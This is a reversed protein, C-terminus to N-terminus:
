AEAFRKSAEGYKGEMLEEFGNRIKEMFLPNEKVRTKAELSHFNKSPTAEKSVIYSLFSNKMNRGLSQNYAEVEKVADRYLKTISPFLNDLEQDSVEPNNKKHEEKLLDATKDFVLFNSMSKVRWDSKDLHKNIMGKYGHLIHYSLLSMKLDKKVSDKIFKPNSNKLQGFIKSMM